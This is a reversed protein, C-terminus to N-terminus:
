KESWAQLNRAIQRAHVELHEAYIRLWTEVGYPGTHETHRGQRQWETETLRQLLPVTNTRVARVAALAPELPHTHYDFAVAWRDQDYGQILPDPTALLYRLRMHGNVESDGCHVVVEHVTWQGTAPRWRLADPPVTALARELLDPGSAYRRILDTREAPTM